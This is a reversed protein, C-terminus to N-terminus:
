SDHHHQRQIYTLHPISFCIKINWGLPYMLLGQWRLLRHWQVAYLIDIEDMYQILKLRKDSLRKDVFTPKMAAPHNIM